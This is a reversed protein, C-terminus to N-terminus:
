VNPRTDWAIPLNELNKPVRWVGSYHKWAAWDSTKITAMTGDSKTVDVPRHEYKHKGPLVEHVTNMSGMYGITHLLIYGKHNLYRSVLDAFSPNTNGKVGSYCVGCSIAGAYRKVLGKEIMRDCVTEFSLYQKRVGGGGTNSIYPSGAKGHGVLEIRTTSTLGMEGLPKGPDDWCVVSFSRKRHAAGSTGKDSAETAERVFDAAEARPWAIFFCRDSIHMISQGM